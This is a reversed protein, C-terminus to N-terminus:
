LGGFERPDIKKLNSWSFIVSDRYLIFLVIFVIFIIITIILFWPWPEQPEDPKVNLKWSSDFQKKPMLFSRTPSSPTSYYSVPNTSRINSYYPDWSNPEPDWQVPILPRTPAYLQISRSNDIGRLMNSNQENLTKLFLQEDVKKVFSMNRIKYMPKLNYDSSEPQIFIHTISKSNNYVTSM